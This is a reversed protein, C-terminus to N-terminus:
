EQYEALVKRAPPASSDLPRGGPDVPGIVRKLRNWYGRPHAIDLEGVKRRSKGGADHNACNSEHKRYDQYGTRSASGRWSSPACLERIGAAHGVIYSLSQTLHILRAPIRPHVIGPAFRGADVEMQTDGDPLFSSQGVKRRCSDREQRLCAPVPESKWFRSALCFMFAIDSQRPAGISSSPLPLRTGCGIRKM